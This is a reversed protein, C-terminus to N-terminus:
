KRSLHLSQMALADTHPELPSEYLKTHGVITEYLDKQIAPDLKMDTM